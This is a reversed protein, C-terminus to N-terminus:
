LAVPKSGALEYGAGFAHNWAMEECGPHFPREGKGVHSRCFQSLWSGTCVPQELLTVETVWAVHGVPVMSSRHLVPQQVLQLRNVGLEVLPPTPTWMQTSRWDAALSPPIGAWTPPFYRNMM